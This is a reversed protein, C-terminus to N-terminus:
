REEELIALFDRLVARNEPSPDLQHQIQLIDRRNQCKAAEIARNREEVARDRAEEALADRRAEREAAKIARDRAEAEQNRRRNGGHWEIGIAVLLLVTAAVFVVLSWDLVTYEFGYQEFPITEADGYFRLLAAM